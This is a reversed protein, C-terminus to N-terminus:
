RISIAGAIHCRTRTGNPAYMSTFSCGPEYLDSCRMVFSTCCSPIFTRLSRASLFYYHFRRSPLSTQPWTELTETICIFWKYLLCKIQAACHPRATSGPGGRGSQGGARCASRATTMRGGGWNHESSRVTRAPSRQWCSPLVFSCKSHMSKMLM